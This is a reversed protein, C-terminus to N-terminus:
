KTINETGYIGHVEKTVIDSLNKIGLGKKVDKM